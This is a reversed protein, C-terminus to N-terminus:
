MKENLMEVARRHLMMLKTLCPLARGRRRSIRADPAIRTLALNSSTRKWTDQRPALAGPFEIRFSPGHSAEM